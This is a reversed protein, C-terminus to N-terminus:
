ALPRARRVLRVMMVLFLVLAVANFAAGWQRLGPEAFLDGLFRAALSAHMLAVPAYLMPHFAEGVGALAAFIVPAHAFIMVIVFGLFFSHVAGDYTPGAVLNGHYLWSAGAVLMWIYASTLALAMYRSLGAKGGIRRAFDYRLLWLTLTVLGAGLIRQGSWIGGASLGAGLPLLAVFVWFLARSQPGRRSFRSLELREGGITMTVFGIWFLTLVYGASGTAWLVNGALWMLSGAVVVLSHDEFRGRSLPGLVNVATMGIAAGIMLLPAIPSPAGLVLTLIGLAGLAPGIFAPRRELAVAREMGIVTGLFGSVLLPGHDPVWGGRPMPWDWGVRVLGAWIGIVVALLAPIVLLRRSL